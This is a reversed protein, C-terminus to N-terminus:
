ALGRRFRWRICAVRRIRAVPFEDIRQRAAEGHDLAEVVRM